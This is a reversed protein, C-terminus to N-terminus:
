KKKKDSEKQFAEAQLRDLRVRELFEPVRDMLASMLVQYPAMPGNELIISTFLVQLEAPTVHGDPIMPKIKDLTEQLCEKRGVLVEDLNCDIDDDNDDDSSDSTSGDQSGEDESLGPTETGQDDEDGTDEDDKIALLKKKEEKCLAKIEKKDLDFIRWFLGEMQKGVAYDLKIKVDIRGPRLIAPEIKNIDNCTFIIIMGSKSDLGDLINLFSSMGLTKIRSHDIDEIVLISRTRLREVARAFKDYTFLKSIKVQRLDVQAHGALAQIISSKGTGPPGYLLYGRRYPIDRDLYYQEQTMFRNVDTVLREKLGPALNVSGLERADFTEKFTWYGSGMDYMNVLMRKDEEKKEPKENNIDSWEQLIKKLTYITVGKASDLSLELYSPFMSLERGDDSGDDSGKKKKKANKFQYKKWQVYVTHEGYQIRNTKGLHPAVIVSPGDGRHEKSYSAVGKRDDTNCVLHSIVYEEISKFIDERPHVQVWVQRRAPTLRAKVFKVVEQWNGRLIPYVYFMLTIMVFDNGFYRKLLGTVRDGLLGHWFKEDSVTDVLTMVRDVAEGVDFKPKYKQLSM